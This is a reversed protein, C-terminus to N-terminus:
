FVTGMWKLDLWDVTLQLDRQMNHKLVRRKLAYKVTSTARQHMIFPLCSSMSAARIDHNRRKNHKLMLYHCVAAM